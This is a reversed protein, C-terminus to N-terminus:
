LFRCIQLTTKEASSSWGARNRDGAHVSHSGFELDGKDSADVMGYTAIQNRVADVVDQNLTGRRQKEHVVDSSAPHNRLDDGFNDFANSYTTTLRATGKQATLGGFHRAEVFYPFVIEGPKTTPTTSLLLITSPLLM